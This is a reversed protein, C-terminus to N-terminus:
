GSVSRLSGGDYVAEGQVAVKQIYDQGPIDFFGQFNKINGFKDRCTFMDQKCGARIEFTVASVVPSPPLEWLTVTGGNHSKVEFELGDNLGSTFKIRGHTFWGNAFAGLGTVVLNRGAASTVSGTGKYTASELNVKCRGDGLKADCTRQYSRGTSQALKHSLSRFEASFATEQRKIEGINGRTATIRMSPNSPDAWNVWILEVEADDYRGSALDDENITESSIAGDVNLNDVSLGLTQTVATATFGSRALYTVGDFTLNRDHETFGQVIGDRRTVKWCLAMTTAGTDLHAQLASPVTKSM